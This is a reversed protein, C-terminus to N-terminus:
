GARSIPALPDDLETIVEPPVDPTTHGALSAIFVAVSGPIALDFFTDAM